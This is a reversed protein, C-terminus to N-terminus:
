VAGEADRGALGHPKILLRVIVSMVMASAVTTAPWSSAVALWVGSAFCM